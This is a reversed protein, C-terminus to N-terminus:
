SIDIWGGGILILEAFYLRGNGLPSGLCTYGLGIESAYELQDAAPWCIEVDM